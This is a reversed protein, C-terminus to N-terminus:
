PSPVYFRRDAKIAAEDELTFRKSDLHTGDTKTGGGNMLLHRLAARFHGGPEPRHSDDAAAHGIEHALTLDKREPLSIVVIGNRDGYGKDFTLARVRQGGPNHGITSRVYYIPMKNGSVVPLTQLLLSTDDFTDGSTNSLDGDEILQSITPHIPMGFISIATVDVGIQAYIEKAVLCDKLVGALDSPALAGSESLVRVVLEIRGAPRIVPVEFTIPNSGTIQVEIKAKASLSGLHTSDWDADEPGLTSYNDDDNADTVLNVDMLDGLSLTIKDPEDQIQSTSTGTINTVGFKVIPPGSSLSEPVVVRIRDRDNSLGVFNSGNFADLWRTPRIETVREFDGVTGDPNIRKQEIEVPLLSLVTRQNAVMPPQLVLTQGAVHIGHTAAPGPNTIEVSALTGSAIGANARFSVPFYKIEEPPAGNANSKIACKVLFSRSQSESLEGGQVVWRMQRENVFRSIDPKDDAFVDGTPSQPGFVMNQNLYATSATLILEQYTAEGASDHGYETPALPSGARVEYYCLHQDFLIRGGLDSNEM